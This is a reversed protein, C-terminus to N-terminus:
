SLDMRGLSDLLAQDGVRPHPQEKQRGVTRAGVGNLAGKAIPMVAARPVMPAFPSGIQYGIHFVMPM